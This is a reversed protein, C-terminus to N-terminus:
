AIGAATQLGLHFSSPAVITGVGLGSTRSRVASLHEGPLPQPPPDRAPGVRAPSTAPPAAERRRIPRSGTEGAPLTGSGLAAPQADPVEPTSAQAPAAGLGLGEVSGTAPLPPAPRRRAARDGRGWRRREGRRSRAARKRGRRFPVRLGRAPLRPPRDRRGRESGQCPGEAGRPRRRLVDRTARPRRLSARSEAPLARLRGPPALGREGRGGSCSRGRRGGLVSM